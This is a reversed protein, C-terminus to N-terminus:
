APESHFYVHHQGGSVNRKIVKSTPSPFSVKR